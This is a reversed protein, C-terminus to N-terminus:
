QINIIVGPNTKDILYPVPVPYMYIVSDDPLWKAAVMMDQVLETMNNFDWIGKTKRIFQFTIFLPYPKDGKLKIFEDRYHVYLSLKNKKYNCVAASDAIFPQVPKGNLFWKSNKVYKKVYKARIRKNNKSSYVEGPIFIGEGRSVLAAYEPSLEAEVLRKGKMEIVGKSLMARFEAATM